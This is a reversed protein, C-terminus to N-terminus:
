QRYRANENTNVDNEDIWVVAVLCFEISFSGGTRISCKFRNTYSWFLLLICFTVLCTAYPVSISTWVLPLRCMGYLRKPPVSNVKEKDGNWIQLSIDGRFAFPLRGNYSPYGENRHRSVSQRRHLRALSPLVLRPPFLLRGFPTCPTKCESVSTPPVNLPRTKAYKKYKIVTSVFYM